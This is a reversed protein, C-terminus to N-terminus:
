VALVHHRRCVNVVNEGEVGLSNSATPHNMAFAARM